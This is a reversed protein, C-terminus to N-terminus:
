HSESYGSIGLSGELSKVAHPWDIPCSLFDGPGITASIIEFHKSLEDMDPADFEKDGAISSNYDDISFLSRDMVYWTKKGVALYQWGSGFPPDIHIEGCQLPNAPSLVYALWLSEEVDAKRNIIELAKPLLLSYGRSSVSDVINFGLCQSDWADLASQGTSLQVEGKVYGKVIREKSIQNRIVAETMLSFSRCARIVFPFGQGNQRCAEFGEEFSAFEKMENYRTCPQMM